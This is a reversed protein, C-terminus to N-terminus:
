ECNLITRKNSCRCEKTAHEGTRLEIPPCTLIPDKQSLCEKRSVIMEPMHDAGRLLQVTDYGMSNAKAAWLGDDMKSKVRPKESFFVGDKERGIGRGLAKWTGASWSGNGRFFLNAEGRTWFRMSKGTNIFIGTGRTFPPQLAFFWCGYNVGEWHRTKTYWSNNTITRYVELWTHDAHFSGRHQSARVLMVDHGYHDSRWESM